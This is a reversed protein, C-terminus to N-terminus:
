VIVGKMRIGLRMLIVGWLGIHKSFQYRFMLMEEWFSRQESLLNPAYVNILVGDWRESLSNGEGSRGLAGAYRFDFDDDGWIRRILDGSVIVLKSEQLFCVDVRHKSVLRRVMAIKVETGLGRVNWSVIRM